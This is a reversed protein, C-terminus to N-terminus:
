KSMQLFESSVAPLQFVGRHQLGEILWDVYSQRDTMYDLINDQRM